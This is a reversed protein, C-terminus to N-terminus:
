NKWIEYIQNSWIRQFGFRRPNEELPKRQTVETSFACEQFGSRDYAIQNKNLLLYTEPSVVSDCAGYAAVPLDSFGYIPYNGSYIWSSLVRHPNCKKLYATAERGYEYSSHYDEETVRGMAQMLAGFCSPFMVLWLILPRTDPILDPIMPLAKVTIIAAVVFIFCHFASMIWRADKHASAAERAAIHDLVIWVGGIAVITLIDWIREQKRAITAVTHAAAIALAPLIPIWLRPILGIPSYETIKQSSFIWTLPICTAYKRWFALKPNRNFLIFPMALMIMLGFGYNEAFMQAPWITWRKLVGLLTGTGYAENAKAIANEAGHIKWLPDGFLFYSIIVIAIGTITLTGWFSKWFRTLNKNRKWTEWSTWAFFPLFLVASEKTFFAIIWYIATLVGESHLSAPSIKGSEANWANLVSLNLIGMLLIDGLAASSEALIQNLFGVLILSM